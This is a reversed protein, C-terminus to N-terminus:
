RAYEVMNDWEEMLKDREFGSVKALAIEFMSAIAELASHGFDTSKQREWGHTALVTVSHSLLDIDQSKNPEPSLIYGCRDM